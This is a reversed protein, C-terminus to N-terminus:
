SVINWRGILNVIERTLATASNAEIKLFKPTMETNYAHVGLATPISNDPTENVWIPSGSQGVDTDMQYFLRGDHFKKISGDHTLLKNYGGDYESYGSISATTEEINEHVEDYRFWGIKNGIPEELRVAGIDLAIDNEIKWLDSCFFTTSEFSGYPNGRNSSGPTVVIKDAWGSFVDSYVCHGCTIITNPGALWGTGHHTGNASVIQLACIARWPLKRTNFQIDRDDSGLVISKTRVILDRSTEVFWSLNGESGLSYDNSQYNILESSISNEINSASKLM